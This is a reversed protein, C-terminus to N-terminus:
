RIVIAKRTDIIHGDVRLEYFYMGPAVPHGTDDLGDWVARHEGAPYSGAALHRVVAGSVDLVLVSVTGHEPLHFRIVTEQSFPNPRCPGLWLTRSPEDPQPGVGADWWLVEIDFYDFDYQDFDDTVKLEVRYNGPLLYEHTVM